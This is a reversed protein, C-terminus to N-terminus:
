LLTVESFHHRSTTAIVKISIKVGARIAEIITTNIM